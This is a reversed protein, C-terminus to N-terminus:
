TSEGPFAPKVSTTPEAGTVIKHAEEVAAATQTAAKAAPTEPGTGMSGSGFPSNFALHGGAVVIVMLALLCLALTGAYVLGTQAVAKLQIQLLGICAPLADFKSDSVIKNAALTRNCWGPSSLIQMIWYGMYMIYSSTIAVCVLAFFRVPQNRIFNLFSKV